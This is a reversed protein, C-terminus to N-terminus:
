KKMRELFANITNELLCAITMPGVGGPVPTIAACKPAVREYDVDGVLKGESNRNIGADLIVVGEKVMDEKIFNIKGVGVALIDARRTHFEIDRTKSHCITVTANRNLFLFALPKGIVNTRNIIVVEKGEISIQNEELLKIMVKPTCSAYTEIGRQLLGMASLGFGDVDKSPDILDLIEDTYPKLHKPLPLQVLIGDVDRNENLQRVLSKLEEFTTDEKLNYSFSKMGIAECSKVKMGVYVKSAEDNGVLVTALGPVRGYQEKINPIKEKLGLKIKESLVKGDLVKMIMAIFAV